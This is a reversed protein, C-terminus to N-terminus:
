RVIVQRNMLKLIVIVLLVIVLVTVIIGLGDGGSPLGKSASALSHLDQDSMDALRVQVEDAKVGYDLLKRAVVKHELARQVTVMDADRVSAISTAGSPQSAVLGAGAPAAQFACWYVLLLLATWFKLARPFDKMM